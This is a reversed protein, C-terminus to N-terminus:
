SVGRTPSVETERETERERERERELRDLGARIADFDEPIPVRATGAPEPDPVERPVCTAGPDVTGCHRCGRGGTFDHERVIM